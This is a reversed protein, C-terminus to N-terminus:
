KYEFEQREAWGESKSHAWYVVRAPQEVSMFTQEFHIPTQKELFKSLRSDDIFISKISKGNKDDFAVLIFDYDKKSFFNSDINVLHYHSKSFSEEWEEENEGIIPNPPYKWDMTHQQM